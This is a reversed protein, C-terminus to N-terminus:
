EAILGVARGNHQGDIGTLIDEEEPTTVAVVTGAITSILQRPAIGVVSLSHGGFPETLGDALHLLLAM